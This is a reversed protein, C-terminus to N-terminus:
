ATKQALAGWYKIEGVVRALLALDFTKFSGLQIRKGCVNIRAVFSGGRFRIGASSDSLHRRHAEALGKRNEASLPRGLLAKSKKACHEESLKKGRFASGIKERIHASPNKIGDGGETSNTLKFGRELYVRIFAKEWVEWGEVPVERLIELVPVRPRM